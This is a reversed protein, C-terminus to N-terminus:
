VKKENKIGKRWSEAKVKVVSNLEYNFYRQSPSVMRPLALRVQLIWPFKYLWETFHMSLTFIAVALVYPIFGILVHYKSNM